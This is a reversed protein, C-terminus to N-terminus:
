SHSLLEAHPLQYFKSELNCLAQGIEVAFIQHVPINSSSVAHLHVLESFINQTMKVVKTQKNKNQFQITLYSFM